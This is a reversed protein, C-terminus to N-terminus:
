WNCRHDPDSHIREFDRTYSEVINGELSGAEPARYVMQEVVRVHRASDEPSTAHNVASDRHAFTTARLAAHQRYALAFRYPAAGVGQPEGGEGAGSVQALLEVQDDARQLLEDSICASREASRREELVAEPVPAPGDEDACAALLSAALVLPLYPLTRM